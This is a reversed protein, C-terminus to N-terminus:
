EHLNSHTNYIVSLHYNMKAHLAKPPMQQSKEFNDKEFFEKLFVTLTDFQKSGSWSRCQTPGSRPEFQWICLNDAPLLFFAALLSHPICWQIISLYSFSFFVITWMLPMQYESLIMWRQGCFSSIRGTMEHTPFMVYVSGKDRILVKWNKIHLSFFIM